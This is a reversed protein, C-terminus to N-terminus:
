DSLFPVWPRGQLGPVRTQQPSGPTSPFRYRRVRNGRDSRDTRESPLCVSRPDRNSLLGSGVSRSRPRLVSLGRVATGRPSHSSAGPDRRYGSWLSVLTESHSLIIKVSTLPGRTPEQRFGESPEPERREGPVPSKRPDPVGSLTRTGGRNQDNVATVEAKSWRVQLVNGTKPVLEVRGPRTQTRRPPDM